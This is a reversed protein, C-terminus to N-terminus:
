YGKSEEVFTLLKENGEREARGALLQIGGLRSSISDWRGSGGGKSAPPRSFWLIFRKVSWLHLRVRQIRQRRGAHWHRHTSLQSMCPQHQKTSNSFFCFLFFWMQVLCIFEDHRFQSPESDPSVVHSSFANELMISWHILPIHCSCVSQTCRYSVLRSLLLM